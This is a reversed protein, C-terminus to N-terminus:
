FFNILQFSVFKKEHVFTDSGQNSRSSLFIVLLAVHPTKANEKQKEIRNKEEKKMKKMNKHIMDFFQSGIQQAIYNSIENLEIRTCNMTVTSRGGIKFLITNEEHHFERQFIYLLFSLSM